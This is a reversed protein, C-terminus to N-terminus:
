TSKHYLLDVLTDQYESMERMLIEVISTREQSDRLSNHLYYNSEKAELQCNRIRMQIDDILILVGPFLSQVKEAMDMIKEESM